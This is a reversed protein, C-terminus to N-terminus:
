EQLVNAAANDISLLPGRQEPLTPRDHLDHSVMLAPIQWQAIQEFTWQRVDERRHQDLAAFPEDLLLAKPENILARLLAIRAQEGGSLTAPMAKRKDALGVAVLLTELREARAARSQYPARRPLAFLLNQEVSLHPFLLASQFLMGIRRESVSQQTISENNLRASGTIDFVSPAQGLLWLLLTSKGSGSPGMIMGVKGPAVCCEPVELLTQGAQAIRVQQLELM